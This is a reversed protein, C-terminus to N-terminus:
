LASLRYNGGIVEDVPTEDDVPEPQPIYPQLLDMATTRSKEVKQDIQDESKLTSRSQDWGKESVIGSGTTETNLAPWAHALTLNAEALSCAIKSEDEDDEIAKIEAYKEAGLVKKMEIVAKLWHTHLLEDDVSKINGEAKIQAYSTLM